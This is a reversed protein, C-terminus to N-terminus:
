VSSPTHSLNELTLEAVVETLAVAEKSLGNVEDSTAECATDGAFRKKGAERFEKSWRYYFNQNIGEGLCGPPPESPTRLM